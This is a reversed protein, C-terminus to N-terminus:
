TEFKNNEIRIENNSLLRKQEVIQYQIWMATFTVFYFNFFGHFAMLFLALAITQMLLYPAEKFLYSSWYFLHMFYALFALFPIVGAEGLIMLYSNHVGVIRGPEGQFSKYGNGFIPAELIKDYYLAWTDTRSDETIEENSVKENTLINKLQDFRPNNLGVLDDIILLSSFILFGIGLIRINKIDIKLSLLNLIVWIVIFSRSFTLLGMLTFIFQGLLKIPLKKIGYTLAYGYICMFGANNPQLYIGFYRGSKSPFFLAHVAITLSALLLFYFLQEKSVKKILEYGAIVFVFYKITDNVFYKTEEQYQFSSITFYLLSIILIWWNPATKEALLYYFALLAITGFSLVAGATSGLNVLAISSLNWLLLALLVARFIKM